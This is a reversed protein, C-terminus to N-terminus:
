ATYSEEEWCSYLITNVASGLQVQGPKRLEELSVCVLQAGQLCMMKTMYTTAM